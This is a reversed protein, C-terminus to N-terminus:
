RSGQPTPSPRSTSRTTRTSSTTSTTRDSSFRSPTRRTLSPAHRPRSRTKSVAMFRKASLRPALEARIKDPDPADGKDDDGKGGGAPKKGTLSAITAADKKTKRELSKNIRQQAEFKAKWDADDGDDAGSDDQDDDADGTDDQDDADDEPGMFFGGFAARNRAFTEELWSADAPSLTTRKM